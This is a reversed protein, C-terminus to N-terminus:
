IGSLDRVHVLLCPPQKACEILHTESGASQRDHNAVVAFAKSLMALGGM